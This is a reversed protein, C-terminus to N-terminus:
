APDPILQLLKFHSPDPLSSKSSTDGEEEKLDESM